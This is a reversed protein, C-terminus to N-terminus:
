QVCGRALAATCTQVSMLPRSFGMRRMPSRIAGERPTTTQSCSPASHVACMPPTPPAGLLPAVPAGPAQCRHRDAAWAVWAVATPRIKQVGADNQTSSSSDSASTGGAACRIVEGRGGVWGGVIQQVAWQRLRRAAPAYGAVGACGTPGAPPSHPSCPRSPPAARHLAPPWCTLPTATTTPPPPFIPM